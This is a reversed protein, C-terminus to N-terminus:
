MGECRVSSCRGKREREREKIAVSMSKVATNNGVHLINFAQGKAVM